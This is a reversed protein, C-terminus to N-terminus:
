VDHVCIKGKNVVCVGVCVVVYMRLLSRLMNQLSALHNSVMFPSTSIQSPTRKSETCVRKVAPVRPFQLQLQQMQTRSNRVTQPPSHAM